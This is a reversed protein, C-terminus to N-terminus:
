VGKAGKTGQQLTRNEFKHYLAIPIVLLVVMVVAIASAQPWDYQDFFSSWLVKGIMLNSPGSVLDPIVFEGVCPIFVLMSGAIVGNKSLPLTVKWFSKSPTCGLDQAAEILRNDLKVLTTYLPLVMFPLYAYTMVLMLSFNNYFLDYPGMGIKAFLQNVIGNQSLLGMWAYVRLLLSTWFPLMIALLLGNRYQPRAKAIGYAIPYGLIICYITTMAAVIFSNIYTRLYINDGKPSLVGWGDFLNKLGDSGTITVILNFPNLEGKITAWMNDFIGGYNFLSLNITLKQFGSDYSTLDTYPPISITSTAFSIKLVIFFPILFFVLLWIFPVAIVTRQGIKLKVKAEALTKALDKM